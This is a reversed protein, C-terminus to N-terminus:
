SQLLRDLDAVSYIPTLYPLVASKKVWWGQKGQFTVIKKQKLEEGMLLSKKIGWVKWCHFDLLAFVAFEYDHEPELHQWVCDDKGAWYRASKIEIKKGLRIGDHQTSSRPSMKFIEQIIKESESGFPKSELDVLQLVEESSNMRKYYKIQTEKDKISQFTKTNKWSTAALINRMEGNQVAAPDGAVPKKKKKKKATKMRRLIDEVVRALFSSGGIIAHFAISDQILPHM